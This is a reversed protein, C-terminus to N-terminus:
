LDTSSMHATLHHHSKNKQFLFPKFLFFSPLGFLLTGSVIMATALDEDSINMIGAAFMAVFLFLFLIGFAMRIYRKM